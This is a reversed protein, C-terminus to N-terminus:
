LLEHPLNQNLLKVSFTLYSVLAKSFRSAYKLNKYIIDRNVALITKSPATEFKIGNQIVLSFLQLSPPKNNNNNEIILREQLAYRDFYCIKM